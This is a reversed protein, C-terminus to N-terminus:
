KQGGILGGRPGLGECLRLPGMLRGGLRLSVVEVGLHRNCSEGFTVAATEVKSAAPGCVDVHFEDRAGWAPGRGGHLDCM